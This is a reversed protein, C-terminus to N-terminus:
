MLPGVQGVPVPGVMVKGDQITVSVPIRGQADRAIFGLANLAQKVSDAQGANMQGRAVAADILPELGGIRGSISGLPRLQDDVTFSGKTTLDLSGWKADARSIELTGGAQAWAAIMERQGRGPVTQPLPGALGLTLGLREIDPGLPQDGGTVIRMNEGDIALEAALPATPSQEGSAPAEGGNLRRAHIEFLRATVPEPATTAEVRLDAFSVALRQPQGRELGVSIAASTANATARQEVGRPDTWRFEGPGTLSAMVLNPNWPLGLVTVHPIAAAPRGPLRPGSMTLNEIQVELRYPYGGIDFDTYAIEVGQAAQQAIWDSTRDRVQGALYFWWATWAGIAVLVFLVLYVYRKRM